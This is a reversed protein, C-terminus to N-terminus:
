ARFQKRNKLFAQADSIVGKAMDSMNKGTLTGNERNLRIQNARDYLKQKTADDLNDPINFYVKDIVDAEDMGDVDAPTLSTKNEEPNVDEDTDIADVEDNSHLSTDSSFTAQTVAAGENLFNLNKRKGIIM